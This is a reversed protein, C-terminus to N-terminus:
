KKIVTRTVATISIVKGQAVDVCVVAWSSDKSLTVVAQTAKLTVTGDGAVSLTVIPRVATVNYGDSLLKSADPDSKLIDLVKSTFEESVEVTFFGRRGFGRQWGKGLPVSASPTDTTPALWTDTGALHRYDTDTGCWYRQAQSAQALAVASAAVVAVALAAVAAIVVWKTEM